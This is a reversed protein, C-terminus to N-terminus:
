LDTTKVSYCIARFVLSRGFNMNDDTTVISDFIETWGEGIEGSKRVKAAQVYWVTFFHLSHNNRVDALVFENAAVEVMENLHHLLCALGITTVSHYPVETLDSEEMRKKKGWKGDKALLGVSVDKALVDSQLHM